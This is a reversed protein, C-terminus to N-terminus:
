SHTCLAEWSVPYLAKMIDGIARAFKQTELQTHEETRLNWLHFWGLLTGTTVTTTYMSQPLIMRAQEPAVGDDLMSNYLDVSKQILDKNSKKLDKNDPHVLDSSGQKVNDAKQRWMTPEHFKPEGTIYRRSVESWSFGAQHKGLQRLVFIPAVIRLSASPHRFPLVHRERALYNILKRDKDEDLEEHQKDFSCRAANVVLLDGNPTHNLLEVSGKELVQLKM